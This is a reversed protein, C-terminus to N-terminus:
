EVNTNFICVLNKHRQGAGRTVIIADSRLSGVSLLLLALTNMLSSLHRNYENYTDDTHLVRLLRVLSLVEVSFKKKWKFGDEHQFQRHAQWLSTKLSM